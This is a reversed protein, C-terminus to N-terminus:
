NVKTNMKKTYVSLTHRVPNFHLYYEKTSGTGIQNNPDYALRAEGIYYDKDEELLYQPGKYSFTFQGHGKECQMDKLYHSIETNSGVERDFTSWGFAPSGEDTEWKIFPNKVFPLIDSPEPQTNVRHQLFSILYPNQETTPKQQAQTLEKQYYGLGNLGYFVYRKEVMTQGQDLWKHAEHIHPAPIPIQKFPPKPLFYSIILVLGIFLLLILVIWKFIKKFKFSIKM